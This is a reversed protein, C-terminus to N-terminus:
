VEQAVNVRVKDGIDLLVVLPVQLILVLHEKIYVVGRLLLFLEQAM